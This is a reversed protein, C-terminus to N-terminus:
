IFKTVKFVLFFKNNKFSNKIFKLKLYTYIYINNM